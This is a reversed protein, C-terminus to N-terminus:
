AAHISQDFTFMEKNMIEVFQRSFDTEYIRFEIDYIYQNAVHQKSTIEGQFEHHIGNELQIDIHLPAGNLFPIVTNIICGDNGLEIVHCPVTMANTLCSILDNNKIHAVVGHTKIYKKSHSM